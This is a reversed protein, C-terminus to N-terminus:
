ISNPIEASGTGCEALLLVAGAVAALILTRHMTFERSGM